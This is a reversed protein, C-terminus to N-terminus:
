SNLEPINLNNNNKCDLNNDLVLLSIKKNRKVHKMQCVTKQKSINKKAITDMLENYKIIKLMKKFLIRDSVIKKAFILDNKFNIKEIISYLLTKTEDPMNSYNKIENKLDNIKGFCVTELGNGANEKSNYYKQTNSVTEIVLRDNEIGNPEIHFYLSIRTNYPKISREKSNDILFSYNKPSKIEYSVRFYVYDNKHVFFCKGNKTLCHLKFKRLAYANDYNTNCWKKPIEEKQKKILSIKM